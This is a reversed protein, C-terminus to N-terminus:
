FPPEDNPLDGATEVIQRIVKRPVSPKGGPRLLVGNGILAAAPPSGTVEEWAQFVKIFADGAKARFNRHGRKTDPYGTAFQKYLQDFTVRTYSTQDYLRYTLWVYLDYALPSRNLKSLIRKDLPVAGHEAIELFFNRDVIIHSGELLQIDDESERNWEFFAEEAIHHNEFSDIGESGM